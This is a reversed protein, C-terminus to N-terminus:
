ENSKETEAKMVRTEIFQAERVADKDEPFSALYNKLKRKAKDFNSLNEYAIIENKMLVQKLGSANLKLGLELYKVAKDYDAAKMLCVAAQNYVDPSSVKGSNIYKEYYFVAKSYDKKDRYIEGIYYDAEPLGKKSSETLESLAQDYNKQYFHIKALNYKDDETKPKIGSAKELVEKAGAEDNNRILMDYKGFYYEYNDPEMSIARDFDKAAKDYLGQEMYSYAREGYARSAEKSYKIIRNYVEVAKDYSGDARYSSGMYYLIDSNLKPLENIELAQDFVELAKKYKQMYYYAIGEARLVRKNNEKILSMDKNIYAHNLSILADKYKGLSILAMGYDIYYDARNPNHDIAKQFYEAAKEYNGNEFSKKGDKDYRGATSCGAFATVLIILIGITLLKRNM